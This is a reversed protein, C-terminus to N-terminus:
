KKLLLVSNLGDRMVIDYGERTPKVSAYVGLPSQGFRMMAAKIASLTPENNEQSFMVGNWINDPREGTTKGSLGVHRRGSLNEPSSDKKINKEAPRFNSNERSVVGDVPLGGKDLLLKLALLTESLTSIMQEYTHRNGAVGYSEGMRSKGQVGGGFDSNPKKYGGVHSGVGSFESVRATESRAAFQSKSFSNMM